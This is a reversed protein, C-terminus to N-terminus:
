WLVKLCTVDGFVYNAFQFIYAIFQITLYSLNFLEIQICFPQSWRPLWGKKSIEVVRSEIEVIAWEAPNVKSVAAIYHIRNQPSTIKFNVHARSALGRKPWHGLRNSTFSMEWWAICRWNVDVQGLELPAGVSHLAAVYHGNTGLAELAPTGIRTMIRMSAVVYASDTIQVGFMQYKSDIPDM